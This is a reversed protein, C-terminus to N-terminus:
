RRCGGSRWSAASCCRRSSWGPGRPAGVAVARPRDRWWCWVVAGVLVGVLAGYPLGVTGVVLLVAWPEGTLLYVVLGLPVAALAGAAAGLLAGLGLWRAEPRQWRESM